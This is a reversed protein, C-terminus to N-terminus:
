FATTVSLSATSNNDTSADKGPQIDRQLWQLTVTVQSNGSAQTTTISAKGDPLDTTVQAMWQALDWDALESASCSNTVCNSSTTEAADDMARDYAKAKAQDVNARMRDFLNYALVSAQTRLYAGDSAHLSSVQLGVLGLLGVGLIVLAILIEVLSFGRSSKKRNINMLKKNNAHWRM